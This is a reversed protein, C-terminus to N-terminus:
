NSEEPTGCGASTFRAHVSSRSLAISVEDSEGNESESHQPAVHRSARSNEQAHSCGGPSDSRM